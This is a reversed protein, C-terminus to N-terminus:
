LIDLHPNPFHTFSNIKPLPIKVQIKLSIFIVATSTRFNERHENLFNALRTYKKKWIVNSGSSIFCSSFWTSHIKLDKSM